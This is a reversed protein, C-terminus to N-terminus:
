VCLLDDAADSTYLLSDNSWAGPAEIRWDMAVRVWAEATDPQELAATSCQGPRVTDARIATGPADASGTVRVDAPAVPPTHSPASMLAMLLVIVSTSTRM